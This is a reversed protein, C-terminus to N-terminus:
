EAPRVPPTFKLKEILKNVEGTQPDVYGSVATIADVTYSYHLRFDCELEVEGQSAISQPGRDSGVFDVIRRNLEAFSALPQNEFSIGALRGQADATLRVHVAPLPLESQVTQSPAQLPMKINFDGEQVAIKFSFLFFTLLQFVIDIMPTMQMEVKDTSGIAAKRFQM